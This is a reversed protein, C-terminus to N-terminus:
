NIPISRNCLVMTLSYELITVKEYMVTLETVSLSNISTSGHAIDNRYKLLQDIFTEWFSRENIGDAPSLGIDFIDLDVTYPYSLTNAIIHDKLGNILETVESSVDSFAADLKSNNILIFINKVGFNGCIKKIIDPSPNKNNGYIGEILFPEVVYKPELGNLLEILKLRRQETEKQKDDSSDLYPKCFTRKLATPSVIFSSFTNVDHIIAKALDKIFGELHAVILLTTARCLADYLQIDKNEEKSASNILLVVEKWREDVSKVLDNIYTSM